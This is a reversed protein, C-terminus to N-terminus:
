LPQHCDAAHMPATGKKCKGFGEKIHVIPQDQDDIAVISGPPGMSFVRPKMDVM